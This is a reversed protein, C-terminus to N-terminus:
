YVRLTVKRQPRTVVCQSQYKQAVPLLSTVAPLNLIMVPIQCKLLTYNLLQATTKLNDMSIHAAQVLGDGGEILNEVVALRWQIRPKDDHVIVVNGKRIVQQNTGSTQSIRM